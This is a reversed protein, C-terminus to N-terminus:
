IPCIIASRILSSAVEACSGYALPWMENASDLYKLAWEVDIKPRPLNQLQPGSGGWRGTSAAHYVLNCRIRDDKETVNRIKWWKANSSKSIIKRIEIARAAKPDRTRLDQLDIKALTPAQMNELQLGRNQLWKLMVERQTPTFAGENLAAFEALLESEEKELIEIINDVLDTDIQVGNGNIEQDLEWVEQEYESLDPLDLDILETVNVDDKCYMALKVFSERDRPGKPKCMKLMHAKGGMDKKLILCLTEAGKELARPLGHSLLKASTCRWRKWSPMPYGLKLHLYYYWMYYEFQANHAVFYRGKCFDIIEQKQAIFDYVLLYETEKKFVAVLIETSSHQAYVSANVETLDLESATEFDLYVKPLSSHWYKRETMIDENKLGGVPTRFEPLLYLPQFFAPYSFTKVNRM